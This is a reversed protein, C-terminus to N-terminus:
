HFGGANEEEGWTTKEVFDKMHANLFAKNYGCNEEDAVLYGLVERRRLQPQQPLHDRLAPHM